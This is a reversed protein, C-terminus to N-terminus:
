SVDVIPCSSMTGRIIPPIRRSGSGYDVRQVFPPLERSEPGGEGGPRSFLPPSFFSLSVRRGGADGASGADAAPVEGGSGATMGAVGGADGGDAVRSDGGAGPDAGGDEPPRGGAPPSRPTEEPQTGDAM